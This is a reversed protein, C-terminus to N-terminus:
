ALRALKRAEREECAQLRLRNILENCDDRRFIALLVAFRIDAEENLWYCHGGDRRRWLGFDILMRRLEVHDIRMIGNGSQLWAILAENVERESYFRNSKLSLASLSLMLWREDDNMSSFSVNTKKSIRELIKLSRDRCEM